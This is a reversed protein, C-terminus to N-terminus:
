FFLILLKVGIISNNQENSSQDFEKYDLEQKIDPVNQELKKPQSCKRKRGSDLKNSSQTPDDSKRKRTLLTEVINNIANIGQLKEGYVVCGSSLDDDNSESDVEYDVLTQCTSSKLISTTLPFKSKYDLLEQRDGLLIDLYDQTQVQQNLTSKPLDVTCSFDKKRRSKLSSEQVDLKSELIIISELCNKTFSYFQEISILCEPCLTSPLLCHQFVQM